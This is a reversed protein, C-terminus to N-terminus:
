VRAPQVQLLAARVAGLVEAYPSHLDVLGRRIRDVAPAATQALESAREIDDRGVVELVRTLHDPVHGLPDLGVRRMAEIQRTVFAERAPADKHLHEGIELSCLTGPRFTAAYHERLEEVALQSVVEAFSGLAGKVAPLDSREAAQSVVDSIYEDPYDVVAALLDFYDRTM